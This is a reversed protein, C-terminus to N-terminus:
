DEEDSSQKRGVFYYVLVGAAVVAVGTLCMFGLIFLESLGLNFLALM